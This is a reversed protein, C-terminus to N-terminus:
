VESKQVTNVQWFQRLLVRLQKRATHLRWKITGPPADTAEAMENESLGAYYRLVIVARQEAPLAALAQQIAARLEGAELALEPTIDTDPLMDAFTTGDATNPLPDDLSLVRQGQRLMQLADNVVTRLFWPEFPRSSDYRHIREHLRVFAAQVIDEALAKDSTILFATRLARIQYTRVLIALGDIDGRRLRKIAAPIHEDTV